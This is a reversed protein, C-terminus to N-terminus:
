GGRNHDGGKLVAYNKPRLRARHHHHVSHLIATATVYATATDRTTDSAANRTTTSSCTRISGARTLLLELVVLVGIWSSVLLLLGM